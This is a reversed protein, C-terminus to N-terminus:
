YYYPGKKLPQLAAKFTFRSHERKGPCQALPSSFQLFGVGSHLRNIPQRHTVFTCKTKSLWRMAVTCVCGQGDASTSAAHFRGSPTDRACRFVGLATADRLPWVGGLVLRVGIISLRRSRLDRYKDARAIIIVPEM